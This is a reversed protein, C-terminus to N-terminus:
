DAKPPEEEFYNENVRLEEKKVLKDYYKRRSLNDRNMVTQLGQDDATWNTFHKIRISVAVKEADQNAGMYTFTWGETELQKIINGITLATFERSANEAGDTLITVLVKRDSQKEIAYRLKNVAHGIADYLPTMCDPQYSDENLETITQAPQLPLIERIGNSNFSFFQIWQELESHTSATARISQILENFAHITAQKISAMSGSEDLIILNYVKTSM